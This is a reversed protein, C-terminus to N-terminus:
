PKPFVDSAWTDYLEELRTVIEPQDAAHNAWEPEDDTLSALFVEDLEREREPHGSFRGSTDIGRHFLKWDRQRVM